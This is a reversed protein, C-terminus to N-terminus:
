ALLREGHDDCHHDHPHHLGGDVLYDTHDDHPVADHGCDPGHVHRRRSVLRSSTVTRTARASPWSTSTSMTKTRTICIGMTRSGRLVLAVLALDELGGVGAVVTAAQDPQEAHELEAGVVGSMLGDDIGQGQDHAVGM